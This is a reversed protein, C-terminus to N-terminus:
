HCQKVFRFAENLSPLFVFTVLMTEGIRLMVKLNTFLCLNSPFQRLPGRLRDMNIVMLKEITLLDAPLLKSVDIETLNAGNPCEVILTTRAGDIVSQCLSSEIVWPNQFFVPLRSM